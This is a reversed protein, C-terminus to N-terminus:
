LDLLSNLFLRNFGHEEKEDFYFALLNSNVNEWKPYGAIEILNKRAVSTEPLESILKNIWEFNM